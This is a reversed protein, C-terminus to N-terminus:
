TRDQAVDRSSLIVYGGAADEKQVPGDKDGYKDIQM